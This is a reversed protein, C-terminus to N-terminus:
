LLFERVRESSAPVDPFLYVSSERLATLGDHYQSGQLHLATKRM